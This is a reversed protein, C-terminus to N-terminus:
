FGHLIGSDTSFTINPVIILILILVNWRSQIPAHDQNLGSPGAILLDPATRVIPSDLTLSSLPLASSASSVNSIASSASPTSAAHEEVISVSPARLGLSPVSVRSQQCMSQLLTNHSSSASHLNALGTSLPALGSRIEARIESRIESCIESRLASIQNAVEAQFAEMM